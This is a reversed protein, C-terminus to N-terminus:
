IADVAELEAAHDGLAIGVVDAVVGTDDGTVQAGVVSGNGAAAGSGDSRSGRQSSRGGFPVRMFFDMTATRRVPSSAALQLDAPDVDDVPAVLEGPAVPAGLTIDLSGPWPTVPSLM